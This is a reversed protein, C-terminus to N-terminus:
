RRRPSRQAPRRSSFGTLLVGLAGLAIAGFAAYLAPQTFELFASIGGDVVGSRVLAALSDGNPAAVSRVWARAYWLELATIVGALLLAVWRGRRTGVILGLITLIAAALYLYPWTRAAGIAEALVRSTSAEPQGLPLQVQGFQVLEVVPRLAEPTVEILRARGLDLMPTLDLRVTPSELAGDERMADLDAVYAARSLNVSENWARQVGPDALTAQTAEAVIATVRENIQQGIPSESSFGQTLSDAMETALAESLAASSEPETILSGLIRQMPAPTRAVRDLFHAGVAGLGLAGALVLATFAIVSRLFGM